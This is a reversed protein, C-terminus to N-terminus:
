DCELGLDHPNEAMELGIFGADVVVVHRPKNEEIYSKIKDTDPVSRLTFIGEQNIGPLPPKVSEAGPSFVLKDYGETYREGTRINKVMVQRAERDISTVESFNRVELNFRKGFTEPTQVFLNEREEITEGIYYPM